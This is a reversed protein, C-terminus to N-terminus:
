PFLVRALSDGSARLGDRFGAEYESATAADTHALINTKRANVDLLFDNREEETRCDRVLAEAHEKGLLYADSSTNIETPSVEGANESKEAGSGCSCLLLLSIPLILKKM